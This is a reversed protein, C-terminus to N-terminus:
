SNFYLGPHFIMGLLLRSFCALVGFPWLFWDMLDKIAKNTQRLFFGRAKKSIGLTLIFVGMSMGLGLARFFTRYLKHMLAFPLKFIKKTLAFLCMIRGKVSLFHTYEHKFGIPKLEFLNESLAYEKFEIITM